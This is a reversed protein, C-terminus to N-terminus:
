YSKTLQHYVVFEKFAQYILAAEATDDAVQRGRVYFGTPDMRILEEQDIVFKIHDQMSSYLLM